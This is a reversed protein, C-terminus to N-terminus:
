LLRSFADERLEGTGVIRVKIQYTIGEVKIMNYWVSLARPVMNTYFLCADGSVAM